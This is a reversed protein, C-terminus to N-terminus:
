AVKKRSRKLLLCGALLNFIVSIGLAIRLPQSSIGSSAAAQKIGEESINLEMEAKHGMDLATIRWTGAANPVFAFNGQADTRGNQFEVGGEKTKPSFVLVEAYSMPDGGAYEFQVIATQTSISRATVGHALASTVNFVCFVMTLAAIFSAQLM